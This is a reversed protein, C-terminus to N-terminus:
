ANEKENQYLTAWVMLFQDAWPKLKFDVICRTVLNYVIETFFNRVFGQRNEDSSIEWLKFVITEVCMAFELSLKQTETTRSQWQAIECENADIRHRYEEYEIQGM